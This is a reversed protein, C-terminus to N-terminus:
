AVKSLAARAELPRRGKQGELNVYVFERGESAISLSASIVFLAKGVRSSLMYSIFVSPGIPRSSRSYLVFRDRSQFCM